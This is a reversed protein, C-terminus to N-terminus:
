KSIYKGKIQCQGLDKTGTCQLNKDFDKRTKRGEWVQTFGVKASTM